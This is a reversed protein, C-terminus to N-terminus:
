LALREFFFFMKEPSAENAVEEWPPRRVVTPDGLGALLIAIKKGGVNRWVM